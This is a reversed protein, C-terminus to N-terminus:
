RRRTPRLEPGSFPVIFPGPVSRRAVGTRGRCPRRPSVPMIGSMLMARSNSIKKRSAPRISSPCSRCSIRGGVDALSFDRGWGDTMTDRSVFPRSVSFPPPRRTRSPRDRTPIRAPGAVPPEHHQFDVPVDSRVREVPQQVDHPLLADRGHREVAHVRLCCSSSRGRGSSRPTRHPARAAGRTRTHRRRSPGGVPEGRPRGRGLRLRRRFRRLCLPNTHRRPRACRQTALAPRSRVSPRAPPSPGGAQRPSRRPLPESGSLRARPM